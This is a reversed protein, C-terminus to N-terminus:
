TIFTFRAMDSVRQLDTNVPEDLAHANYRLVMHSARRAKIPKNHIYITNFHRPRRLYSLSFTVTNLDSM